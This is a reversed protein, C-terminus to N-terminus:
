LTLTLPSGTAHAVPTIRPQNHTLEPRERSRSAPTM